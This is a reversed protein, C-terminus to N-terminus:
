EADAFPIGLGLAVLFSGTGEVGASEFSTASSTVGKPTSGALSRLLRRAGGFLRLSGLGTGAAAGTAVASFSFVLVPILLAVGLFPMGAGFIMAGLLM